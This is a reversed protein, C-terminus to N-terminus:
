VKMMDNMFDQLIKRTQEQENTLQSYQLELLRMM